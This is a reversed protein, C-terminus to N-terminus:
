TLAFQEVSLLIAQRERLKEATLTPGFDTYHKGILAMAQSLVDPKIRRNSPQGTPSEGAWACRAGPIGADAKQSAAGAIGATGGSRKATAVRSRIAGNVAGELNGQREDAKDDNFERWDFFRVDRSPLFCVNSSPVLM